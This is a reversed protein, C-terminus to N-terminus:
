FVLAYVLAVQMIGVINKLEDLSRHGIAILENIKSSFENKNIDLRVMLAKLPIEINNM